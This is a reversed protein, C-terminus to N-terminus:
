MESDSFAAVKCLNARENTRMFRNHVASMAVVGRAREAADLQALKNCAGREKFSATYQLNEFKLFLQCGTIQSLTQSAVCPTDLVQGQLRAAAQEIDQLNLM